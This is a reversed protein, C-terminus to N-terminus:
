KDDVPLEIRANQNGADAQRTYAGDKIGPLSIDVRIRGRPLESLQFRGLADTVRAESEFGNTGGRVIAGALPKGTKSVLVGALSQDAKKLTLDALTHTEGPKVVFEPSSGNAHAKASMDLYYKADPVLVDMTFIGHADTRAVDRTATGYRRYYRLQLLGNAVPNGDEDRVRGNVKVMSRLQVELREPKDKRPTVAIRAALKRKRDRVMLEFEQEDLGGFVFRGNTDTLCALPRAGNTGVYQTTEITVGAAPKGTPDLVRGIIRVGQTLQCEVNSVTKGTTVEVTRRFRPGAETISRGTQVDIGAYAPPVGTVFLEGKGPPLAMHFRGDPGTEADIGISQWDSQKAQEGLYTIRVGAVGKGTEENLVRGTVSEGRSLKFDRMIEKGAAIEIMSAVGLYESDKPPYFRFYHKRPPLGAVAFRGEDDAAYEPPWFFLGVGARPVPKGTDAYIVRGVLRGASELSIVVDGTLVPQPSHDSHVASRPDGLVTLSQQDTSAAFVERLIFRDHSVRLTVRVDSPLGAIAFSGDDDTEAVPRNPTHHLYVCAPHTSNPPDLQDLRAIQVVQV